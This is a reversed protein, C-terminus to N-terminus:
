TERGRNPPRAGINIGDRMPCRAGISFDSESRYRFNRINRLTILNGNVGASPLVAVDRQWQRDHRPEIASWWIMLATFAVAFPLLPVWPRRRVYTMSLGGLGLFVYSLALVARIGEIAPVTYWLALAGWAIAGTMAIGTLGRVLIRLM